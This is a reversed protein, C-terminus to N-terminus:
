AAARAESHSRENRSAALADPHWYEHDMGVISHYHWWCYVTGPSAFLGDGFVCSRSERVDADSTRQTGHRSRPHTTGANIYESEALEPAAWYDHHTGTIYRYHWWCYVTGPSAFLGDDFVCARGDTALYSM